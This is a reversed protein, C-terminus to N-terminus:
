PRSRQTSRIFHTEFTQGDTFFNRRNWRFKAHLYLNILSAHRYATHGSWPWSWSELARWLRFNAM